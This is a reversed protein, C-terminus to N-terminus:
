GPPPPGPPPSTSPATERHAPTLRILARRTEEAARVFGSGGPLEAVQLITQRLAGDLAEPGSPAGSDGRLLILETSGLDLAELVPVYAARDTTTWGPQDLLRPGQQLLIFRDDRALRRVLSPAQLPPSPVPDVALRALTTALEASTMAIRGGARLIEAALDLIPDPM